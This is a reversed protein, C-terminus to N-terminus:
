ATRVLHNALNKNLRGALQRVAQPMWGQPLAPRPAGGFRATVAGMKELSGLPSEKKLGLAPPKYPQPAYKDKPMPPGFPDIM